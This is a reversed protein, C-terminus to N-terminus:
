NGDELQNLEEELRKLFNEDGDDGSLYWDIRHAYIYARRLVALGERMKAEVEEPFTEYEDSEFSYYDDASKKTGQRDLMSQITEAIYHIHHQYYDFKGGSM